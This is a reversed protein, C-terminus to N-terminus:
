QGARYIPWQTFPRLSATTTRGGVRTKYQSQAPVRTADIAPVPLVNDCQLRGPFHLTPNVHAVYIAPKFYNPAVSSPQNFPGGLVGDDMAAPRPSPVWHTGPSGTVINQGNFSATSSQAPVVAFAGAGRKPAQLTRIAWRM